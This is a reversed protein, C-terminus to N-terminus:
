HVAAVLLAGVILAPGLAIDTKLSARRGALLGVAVVAGLVFGAFIGYLVHGWGLWGLYVALVGALKVDGFGMSRPSALAVSCFVAFVIGGAAAARALAAWDGRIAAAVALLVLGCGAAPLVLRDPLRRLEADILLLPTALVAFVAFAPLAASWGVAYGACSGLIAAVVVTLVLRRRTPAAGRWWTPDDRDPVTRTIRALYPAVLVSSGAGVLAGLQWSSV